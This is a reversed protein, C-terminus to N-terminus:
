KKKRGKDAKASKGPKEGKESKGPRRDKDGRGAKEHVAPRAAVAVVAAHDGRDRKRGPETPAEDRRAVPAPGRGMKPSPRGLSAALAVVEDPSLEVLLGIVRHLTEDPLAATAALLADLEPPELTALIGIARDVRALLGEFRDLWAGLEALAKDDPRARLDSAVDLAVGHVAAIVPEVETAKREAVIRGLWLRDDQVAQYAAGIPGRAGVRRGPVRMALGREVTLELAISAARHSLALAERVQRETLPGRCALLLGHARAVAPPVGWSGAM